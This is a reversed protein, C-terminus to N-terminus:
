LAWLKEFFNLIYHKQFKKFYNQRTLKVHYSFVLSWTKFETLLTEVQLKM